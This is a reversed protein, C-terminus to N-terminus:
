EPLAGLDPDQAQIPGALAGEELNEAPNIGVEVPFYVQLTTDPDPVQM